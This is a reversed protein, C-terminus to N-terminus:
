PLVTQLANLAESMPETLYGWAQIGPVALAVSVIGSALAVWALQKEFGTREGTDRSRLTRMVRQSVDVPEPPTQRADDALMKLAKLENM